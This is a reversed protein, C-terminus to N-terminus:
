LSLLFEYLKKFDEYELVMFSALKKEKKTKEQKKDAEQKKYAEFENWLYYYKNKYFYNGHAFSNRIRIFLSDMENKEGKSFFIVKKAKENYIKVIEDFSSELITSQDFYRYSSDNELNLLKLIDKKLRKFEFPQSFGYDKFKKALEPGKQSPCNDIFWYLLKQIEAIIKKSDSKKYDKKILERFKILSESYNEYM